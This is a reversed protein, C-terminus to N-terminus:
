PNHDKVQSVGQLLSHSISENSKPIQMIQNLEQYPNSFFREINKAKGQHHTAKLSNFFEKNRKSKYYM